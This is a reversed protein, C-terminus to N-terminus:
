IKTMLFKIVGKKGELFKHRGLINQNKSHWGEEMHGQWKAWLPLNCLIEISKVRLQM